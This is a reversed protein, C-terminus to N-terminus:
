GEVAARPLAGFQEILVNDYYDARQAIRRIMAEGIEETFYEDYTITSLIIDQNNISFILGESNYNERLLFQYIASVGTNPLRCLTADGVIFSNQNYTVSISASGEQFEWSNVGRAALRPNKGLRELIREIMSAVRGLEVASEKIISIEVEVGCEPCYKGDITEHTVMSGCSACRTAVAGFHPSYDNLDEILYQVPLAFGLNDGGQIIFSNVGVIEGHYNVLPGGSNGPNIAADIQIYSLQGRQRAAKSVIGATATYSLGYPHGIAVVPDGDAIVNPVSLRASPIDVENPPEIFALDTTKNTFWVRALRQEFARGSITVEAADGVVHNNTVILNQEKLYFGSGTGKRTAIQVIIPQFSTILEQLTMTEM